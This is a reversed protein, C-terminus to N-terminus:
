RRPHPLSSPSFGNRGTKISVAMCENRPLPGVIPARRHYLYLYAHLHCTCGCLGTCTPQHRVEGGTRAARSVLEDLPHVAVATLPSSGSPPHGQFFRHKPPPVHVPLKSQRLVLQMVRESAGVAQAFSVFLGSLFAFSSAIQITLILYETLLGTFALRCSDTGEGDGEVGETSQHRGMRRQNPPHIVSPHTGLQVAAAVTEVHDVRPQGRDVALRNGRRVRPAADTGPRHTDCCAGTTMRGSQVLMGGYGLVLVLLGYVILIV